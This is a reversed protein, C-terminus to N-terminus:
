YMIQYIDSQTPSMLFLTDLQNNVLILGLHVTFSIYFKANNFLCFLYVFVLVDFCFQVLVICGDPVIFCTSHFMYRRVMHDCLIGVHHV